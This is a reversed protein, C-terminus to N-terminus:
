LYARTFSRAITYSETYPYVGRLGRINITYLLTQIPVGPYDCQETLPITTGCQGAPDTCNTTVSFEKDDLTPFELTSCYCRGFQRKIKSCATGPCCIDPVTNSENSSSTGWLFNAPGFSAPMMSFGPLLALEGQRSQQECDDPDGRTPARFGLRKQRDFPRGDPSEWGTGDGFCIFNFFVLISKPQQLNNDRVWGEWGEVSSKSLKFVHTEGPQIPVDEPKPREGPVTIFESRGYRFTSGYPNGDPMKVEPLMWALSLAYIPRNGTNKVEVEFDSAWHENKIDQFGEEKEKKIKVKIPLHGPVRDDLQRKSQSSQATISITKILVFTFLGVAFLVSLKILLSLDKQPNM